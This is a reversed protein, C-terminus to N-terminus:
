RRQFEPTAIMLALGEVGGPSVSLRRFSASSLLPGLVSQALRAIATGGGGLDAVSGVREAFAYAWALREGMQQPSAWAAAQDPWGVDLPMYKPPQGLATINGIAEDVAVGGGSSPGIGLARYASLVLEEPTKVKQLSAQWSAPSNLMGEVMGQLSNGQGSFGDLMESVLDSPPSDAVFARAMKQAIRRATVPRRGIWDLAAEAELTGAEPYRRDYLTKANPEHWDPRYIFRGPNPEDPGTVSWGTLMRALSVVEGDSIDSADAFGYFILVAAALELQLNAAGRTGAVSYRGISLTNNFRILFAPHRVAETLMRVYSGNLNPRVVEREFAYALPFV